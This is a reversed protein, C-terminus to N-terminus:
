TFSEGSRRQVGIGRPRTRPRGSSPLPGSGQPPPDYIFSPHGVNDNKYIYFDVHSQDYIPADRAVTSGSSSDALYHAPGTTFGLRHSPNDDYAMRSPRRYYEYTLQLHRMPLNFANSFRQDAIVTALNDLIQNQSLSLGATVGDVHLYSYLRDVELELDRWRFTGEAGPHFVYFTDEYVTQPHLPGGECFEPPRGVVSATASAPLISVACVILGGAIALFVTRRM